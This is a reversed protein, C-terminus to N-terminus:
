EAAKKAEKEKSNIKGEKKREKIKQKTLVMEASPYILSDSATKPQNM